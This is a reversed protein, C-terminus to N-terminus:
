QAREKAFRGMILDIQELVGKAARDIPKESAPLYYERAMMAGGTWLTLPLVGLREMSANILEDDTNINDKSLAADFRILTHILCTSPGQPVGTVNIHAVVFRESNEEIGMGDLKQMLHDSYMKADDIGCKGANESFTVDIKKIYGIESPVSDAAAPVALLIVMLFCLLRWM